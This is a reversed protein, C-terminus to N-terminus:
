IESSAVSKVTSIMELFRAVMDFKMPNRSLRFQVNKSAYPTPHRMAPTSHSVNLWMDLRSCTLCHSGLPAWTFMHCRMLPLFDVILSLNIPLFDLSGILFLCTALSIVDWKVVIKEWGTQPCPFLPLSM